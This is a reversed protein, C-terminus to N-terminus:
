LKALLTLRISLTRIAFSIYWDQYGTGSVFLSNTNFNLFPFFVLSLHRPGGLRLARVCLTSWSSCSAREEPSLAARWTRTDLLLTFRQHPDRLPWPLHPVSPHRRPLTSASLGGRADMWAKWLSAATFPTSAAAVPFHHGFPQPLSSRTMEQWASHFPYCKLVARMIFHPFLLLPMSTM